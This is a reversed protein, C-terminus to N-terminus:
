SDEAREGLYECVLLNYVGAALLGVLLVGWALVGEIRWGALWFAALADLALYGVLMAASVANSEARVVKGPVFFLAWPMTLAFAIWILGGRLAMWIANKSEPPLQWYWIVVMASAVFVAAGRVKGGVYKGIAQLM